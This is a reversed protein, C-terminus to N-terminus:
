ITDIDLNHLLINLSNHKEKQQYAVYNDYKKMVSIICWYLLQFFLTLLYFFNGLIRKGLCLM